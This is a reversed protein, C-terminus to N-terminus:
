EVSETSSNTYSFANSLLCLHSNQSTCLQLLLAASIFDFLPFELQVYLSYKGMLTDLCSRSVWLPQSIEMRGPKSVEAPCPGLHGAKLRFKDSSQANWIPIHLELLLKWGVLLLHILMCFIWISKFSVYLILVSSLLSFTSLSLAKLMTFFHVSNLYKLM